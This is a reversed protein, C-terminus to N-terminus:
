SAMKASETPGNLPLLVTFCAGNGPESDVSISGQHRLVIGQLTPLGLGGGSVKTTFFPDFIKEQTQPDIGPGSDMVQLSLFPRHRRVILTLHRQEVQEMAEIANSVLNLIVQEIQAPDCVVTLEDRLQLETQIGAQEFRQALLAMVRHIIPNLSVPELRLPRARAFDMVDNVLRNLRQIEEEVINFHEELNGTPQSRKHIMQINM